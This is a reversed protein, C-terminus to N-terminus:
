NKKPPPLTTNEVNKLPELVAFIPSVECTGLPLIDLPSREKGERRCPQETFLLVQKRDGPCQPPPFFTKWSTLKVQCSTRITSGSPMPHSHYLSHPAQLFPHSLLLSPSSRHFARSCPLHLQVLLVCHPSGCLKSAKETPLGRKFVVGHQHPNLVPATERERQGESPKLLGLDSRGGTM